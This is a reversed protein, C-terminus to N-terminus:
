CSTVQRPGIWDPVCVWVGDDHLHRPLLRRMRKDQLPRLWCCYHPRAGEISDVCWWRLGLLSSSVCRVGDILSWRKRQCHVAVKTWRLGM